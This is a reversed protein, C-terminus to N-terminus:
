CQVDMRAWIHSIGFNSNDRQRRHYIYHPLTKYINKNLSFTQFKIRNETSESHRDFLSWGFLVCNEYTMLPLFSFNRCDEAVIHPCIDICKTSKKLHKKRFSFTHTEILIESFNTGLYRSIARNTTTEHGLWDCHIQHSAIVCLVCPCNWYLSTKLM